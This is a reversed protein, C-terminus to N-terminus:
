VPEHFIKVNPMRDVDASRLVAVKVTTFVCGLERLLKVGAGTAVLDPPSNRCTEASYFPSGGSVDDEAVAFFTGVYKMDPCYAGLHGCKGCRSAYPVEAGRIGCYLVQAPALIEQLLVGNRDSARRFGPLLEPANSCVVEALRESYLSIKSVSTGFATAYFVDARAGKTVMLEVSSRVGGWAKCVPCFPKSVLDAVPTEISRRARSSLLYHFELPRITVATNRTPGL